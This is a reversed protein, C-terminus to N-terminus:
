YQAKKRMLISVRSLFQYQDQDQDQLSQDQQYTLLYTLRLNIYRM